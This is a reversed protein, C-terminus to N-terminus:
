ISSEGFSHIKHLILYWLICNSEVQFFCVLLCFWCKSLSITYTASKSSLHLNVAFSFKRFIISLKIEQSLCSICQCLCEDFSIFGCKKSRNMESGMFWVEISYEQSGGCLGIFLVIDPVCYASLLYINSSIIGPFFDCIIIKEQLSSCGINLFCSLSFTLQM